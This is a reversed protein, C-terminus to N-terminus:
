VIRTGNSNRYVNTHAFTINDWRCYGVNSVKIISELTTGAPYVAVIQYTNYKATIYMNSDKGLWMIAFIDDSSLDLTPQNHTVITPSLM